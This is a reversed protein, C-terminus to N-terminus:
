AGAVADALGALWRGFGETGGIVESAAALLAPDTEAGHDVVLGYGGAARAARLAPLDGLDDGAYVLVAPGREAILQTVATGKDIEIPPRLESVMKGPEARLGTAAAVQGTAETVQAAAAAHDPALRWHVTVSAPKDEIAIGPLSGLQRTLTDRAAAVAPLWRAAEPALQVDGDTVQEMGYSGLLVIGPVQVRAALFGAPRGSLVAMTGLPGALRRLSAATLEPLASAQPDDIIPALVGDFDLVLAAAAPQATVADMATLQGTVIRV